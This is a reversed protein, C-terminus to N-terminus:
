KRACVCLAGKGDLKGERRRKSVTVSMALTACGESEMGFVGGGTITKPSCIFRLVKAKRKESITCYLWLRTSDM